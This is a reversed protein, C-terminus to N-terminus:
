TSTYQAIFLKNHCETALKKPDSITGKFTLELYSKRLDSTKGIKVYIVFKETIIKYCVIDFSKSLDIFVFIMEQDASGQKFGCKSQTITDLINIIRDKVTQCIM